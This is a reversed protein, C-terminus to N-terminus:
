ESALQPDRLTRYRQYYALVKIVYDQTERYPPIGHHRVVAGEGANYAAVTLELNGNFLNALIRLYRTGGLINLRPNFSDRIQMRLATEPMLQMLGQAGATSVARPDYDSEVKIVARVLEVPLQYLSAAERIAGDYRSFRESSRDSPPVPVVGARPKKRGERTRLYLKGRPTRVNSFHMVGAADTFSYIDAEADQPVGLLAALVVMAVGRRVCNWTKPRASM